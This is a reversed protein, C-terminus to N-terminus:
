PDPSQDPPAQDFQSWDEDMSRAFTEILAAVRAPNEEHALHGLGPLTELLAGPVLDAVQRADAPRITRDNSGVLLILKPKLLPLDRKIPRLDWNAMMDLAAAAHGPRRMLRAYLDMGKQDIASGTGRMLREVVRRDAVHWAFLHPVVPVRALLKALPSFFQVPLPLFAGNLSFLATPNIANDLCMRALIAAGASHGAVFAPRLNLTGLLATLAAAMGPLSMGPAAPTASFGHGPLDPAIVTFYRALLPALDRWSHTAAGTGHVLLLVPGSGMQQVHWRLGGVQIFRSAARNPWDLGDTDWIPSDLM